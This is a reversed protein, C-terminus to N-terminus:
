NSLTLVDKELLWDKYSIALIKSGIASLHTDMPFYIDQVNRAAANRLVTKANFVNIKSQVREFLGERVGLKGAKLFEFYTSRRDPIILLDLNTIGISSVYGSLLNYGAIASNLQRNSVTLADFDKALIAISDQNISSFVAQSGPRKSVLRVKPSHYGLARKFGKSILNITVSLRHDFDSFDDKQVIKIDDPVLTLPDIPIADQKHPVAGSIGYRSLTKNMASLWFAFDREVTQLIVLKPPSEVFVKSFLVSEFKHIRDVAVSLGTEVTFHNAWSTGPKVRSFSDGLILVDHYQLYGESM